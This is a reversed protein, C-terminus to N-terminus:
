SCAKGSMSPLAQGCADSHALPYDHSNSSSKRRLPPGNNTRLKKFSKCLETEKNGNDISEAHSTGSCSTTSSSNSILTSPVILGVDRSCDSRKTDSNNNVLSINSDCGTRNNTDNDGLSNNSKTSDCVDLAASSKNSSVRNRPDVNKAKSCPRGELGERESNADENPDQTLDVEEKKPSHPARNSRCFPRVGHLANGSENNTFDHNPETNTTFKSRKMNRSKSNFNRDRNPESLMHNVASTSSNASCNEDKVRVSNMPAGVDVRSESAYYGDFNQSPKGQRRNSRNGRGRSHQKRRHIAIPYEFRFFSM